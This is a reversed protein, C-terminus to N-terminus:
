REFLIKKQGTEYKPFLIKRYHLLCEEPTAEGTKIRSPQSKALMAKCLDGIQIFSVFM